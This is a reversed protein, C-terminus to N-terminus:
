ITYFKQVRLLAIEPEWDIEDLLGFRAMYVPIVYRFYGGIHSARVRIIIGMSYLHLDV